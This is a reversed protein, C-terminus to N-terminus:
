NVEGLRREVQLMFTLLNDGDQSDASPNWEQAHFSFQGWHRGIVAQSESYNTPPQGSELTLGVPVFFNDPPSAPYPAPVVILVDTSPRNWGSPLSLDKVLVWSGDEGHDVAVYRRRLLGLEKKLRAPTM